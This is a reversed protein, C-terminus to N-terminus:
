KEGKTIEFKIKLEADQFLQTIKELQQTLHEKKEEEKKLLEELETLEKYEDTEILKKIKNELELNENKVKKIVQHIKTNKLKKEKM